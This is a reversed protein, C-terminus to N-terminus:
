REFSDGLGKKGPTYNTIEGISGVIEVEYEYVNIILNNGEPDKEKLKYTTINLEKGIFEEIFTINAAKNNAIKEPAFDLTVQETSDFSAITWGLNEIYAHHEEDINQNDYAILIFM